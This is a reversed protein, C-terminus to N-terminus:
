FSPIDIQPITRAVKRTNQLQELRDRNITEYFDDLCDIDSWTKAVVYDRDNKKIQEATKEFVEESKAGSLDFIFDCDSKAGIYYYGGDFDPGVTISNEDIPSSIVDFPFDPIDTGTLHIFAPSDAHIKKFINKLREFLSGEGQNEITDFPCDTSKSLEEFFTMHEDTSPTIFLRKKKGPFKEGLASFFDKMFAKYLDIAAKDGVEKALRTKAFGEIPAKAVIVFIEEM